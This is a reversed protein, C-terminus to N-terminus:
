NLGSISGDERLRWHEAAPNRPLGPMRLIDGTLVVIFGAGSNIQLSHVTIDFHRPRGYLKPNDSLSGPAKAICIPLDSCQLRRVEELDREAQKTFAVDNAGYMERSIIRIKEEVPLNLNYLPRWPRSVRAAEIVKAALDLAGEGGKRYHDCIAAAVHAKQCHELIIVLEAPSDSTFRNIAVVPQKDFKQVNEIHKDLNALGNALAQLDERELEDSTAGGHKKLARVTTVLVVVQPDLHGLRCKIDFFKEAGLDFGFGAETIAWDSFHCAMRTALLSSCGHAINAFPGGHVLAPVGETTQVLNPLLADRLLVLMAETIQLDKAYVPVGAYTFAVLTRDLRQRLDDVGAALCLMAMVESAASIDFGGERPVGQKNGGLGLVIHRLSRDNMDIVRRWLIRRPDIALNNGHFIHNDLAAALLNNACSVAHMDGTFHLNIRDAPIIQSAGGGTAGGKMGLCPGLSPQRLAICVSKGLRALAQGLGITTTTKGEGSSTPTTASVLILQAMKPPPQRLAQLDIKAINHGYPRLDDPAIGLQEAIQEIPKFSPSGQNQDNFQM